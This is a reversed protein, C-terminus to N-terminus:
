TQNNIAVKVRHRESEMNQIYAVDDKKLYRPKENLRRITRLIYEHAAFIEKSSSTPQVKQFVAADPFLCRRPKLFKKESVVFSRFSPLTKQLYMGLTNNIDFTLQLAEEANNSSTILGHNELFLVKPDQQYKRQYFNTRKRIEAALQKGPNKYIICLPNKHVFINTLYAKGGQMCTFVNVYVSHTHIVYRSLYLHMYTEMSARQAGNTRSRIIKGARDVAVFGNKSTIQKLPIGSAKIYMIGGKCKVSTNGGGGQVLEPLSGVAHSIRMLEKLEGKM